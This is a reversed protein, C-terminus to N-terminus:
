YAKGDMMSSTTNAAYVGTEIWLDDLGACDMHQGIAKLFNFCIHLGGLLFIVNKYGPNSWVIEKGRSYLPQDATIITHQQGLKHSIAMFRNIVTTVTDNADAPAQLIPLMGTVTIPPNVNTVAENFAAWSPVSKESEDHLRSLIWAKDLLRAKNREPANDIDNFWDTKVKQGDNFVPSPRHGSLAHDAHDLKQYDRLAGPDITRSRQMHKTTVDTPKTAPGRQWVVMQTCHFTNKGDITSELVDINDCSCHVLRDSVINEPIFVNDNSKLKLLIDNAISTDIRRITDIGITHNSAHFLNVLSESRTAQHLAL